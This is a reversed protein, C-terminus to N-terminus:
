RDTGRGVKGVVTSILQWRSDWPEIVRRLLGCACFADVERGLCSIVGNLFKITIQSPAFLLILGFAQQSTRALCNAHVIGARVPSMRLM